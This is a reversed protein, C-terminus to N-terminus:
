LEKMALEKAEEDYYVQITSGPKVENAIIKKSILTEIEAQITRKLPRAGFEIDYGIDIIYNIAESTVSLDFGQLTLRNRLDSLMLEVIGYVQEKGLAQFYVIEDLRNLFEPRFHGKLASDIEEKAEDTIKKHKQISELIVHAGLNSTLIIISNKFDVTRGQSDTVRGDDLIQLFINFVDPHAKEVEDFLIVSYPKRRVAETLQGGEEYGVYGPPAGILGTVSFKEMYESMDFRIMNKEDDFLNKALTKALETKGVGTPGLFLFSGIPRNPNAIGARSRLIAESVKKVAEDQGVVNKHLTEELELLKKREGEVLKTVPIGTWKAVVQSIEDATVKNRLLRKKGQSKEVEKEEQALVQQLQPLTSYKLEAAKNLDYVREAQAIQANVEDIKTKLKQVKLIAKKEQEWKEKMEKFSQRLTALEAQVKGLKEKSKEDEERSLAAEEIEHQMIRRSIEDVETPMSEMETRIMACAEDILDIAKDPLYRDTIYRDALTAAQILAQDQIKVGHFIEFKEQIGRLITIADDVTPEEVLVSQFRRALAPDKEIYERYEDLTTAGMCHLEGRALKPKLLNSADMAGDTKGAGVLQHIEDIFLLINGNASELEDLISKLREEFEGRYKAGAILLGLDLSYITKGKLSTPVDGRIIRQALGEVIATKGVGPEGILCPNNKTKRTLIRMVNRIEDDRGIVPDLKNQRALATVDKGYKKLVDYTDEPNDSSVKVNGRVAKLAVLFANKTIRFIKFIKALNPSAKDIIALMIHEVSVFEDKMAEAQKEANNLIEDTLTSFRMAVTGTVKPEKNIQEQVLIKMNDINVGMHTSLLQYILNEQNDIMSLFLHFDTIEANQNATTINSANAIVDKSKETFKQINM